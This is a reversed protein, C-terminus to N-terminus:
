LNEKLLRAELGYRIAAELETLSLVMVDPAFGHHDQIAGKLKEPLEKAAKAPTQFVANGTQIYTKIHSLNFQELLTMFDKSSLQNSGVNVARLLAIYNTM